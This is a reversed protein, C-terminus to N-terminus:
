GHIYLLRQFQRELFLFLSERSRGGVGLADTDNNDVAVYNEEGVAATNDKGMATATVTVVRDDAVAVERVDVSLEGEVDMEGSAGVSDTLVFVRGCACTSLFSSAQTSM